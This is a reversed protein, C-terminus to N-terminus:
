AGPQPPRPSRGVLCYERGAPDALVTWHGFTGTVRAGLGVHRTAEGARDTCGFDVHARVPQGPAAGHRGALGRPRGRVRADRSGPDAHLDLHCGGGCSLARQVRLYADGSPPLLTAFDASAGRFPSVGYGTVERWFAVGASFAGAPLDPFVTRWHFAMGGPM